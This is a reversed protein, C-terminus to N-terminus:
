NLLHILSTSSYEVSTHILQLTSWLFCADPEENRLELLELIEVRTSPVVRIIVASICVAYIRRNTEPAHCVLQFFRHSIIVAAVFRQRRM